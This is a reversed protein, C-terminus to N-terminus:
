DNMKMEEILQKEFKQNEQMLRELEELEAHINEKPAEVVEEKKEEEVVPEM